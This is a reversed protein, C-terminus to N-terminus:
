KSAIHKLKATFDEILPTITSELYNAKKSSSYKYYAGAAVVPVAVALASKVLDKYDVDMSDLRSEIKSLLSASLSQAKSAATKAKRTAARKVKVKTATKKKKVM